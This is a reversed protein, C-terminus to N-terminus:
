SFLCNKIAFTSVSYSTSSIINTEHETQINHIVIVYVSLRDELM